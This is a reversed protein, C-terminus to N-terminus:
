WTADKDLVKMLEYIFSWEQYEITYNSRGVGFAEKAGAFEGEPSLGTKNKWYSL